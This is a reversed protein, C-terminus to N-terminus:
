KQTLKKIDVVGFPTAGSSKIEKEFINLMKNISEKVNPNDIKSKIVPGDIVDDIKLHYKNKEAKNIIGSFGIFIGLRNDGIIAESFCIYVIKKNIVYDGDIITFDINVSNVNATILRHMDVISDQYTLLQNINVTLTRSDVRLKRSIDIAYECLDYVDSFNKYGETAIIKSEFPLLGDPEIRVIIGSKNKQILFMVNLFDRLSSLSKKEKTVLSFSFNSNEESLGIVMEFYDSTVRFKKLKEPLMTSLQSFYFKGSFVIEPSFDYEKFIIKADTPKSTFSLLGDGLDLFPKQSKINFRKHYCTFKNVKINKKIGLSLDVMDKLGNKGIITTTMEGYGTEYGLTRAITRKESIYSDIGEPIHAIISDKLSNGNTNKLKDKQSYHITIKNKHLRNAKGKEDLQRIRKLTKGIINKDIHVLYIAQPENLKDFEMICIFAPLPSLSLRKLNKVTVQWKGEKKDSAKVQVRCEIPTPEMDQPLNLSEDWPFEVNFDWGTKDVDSSNAILGVSDCLFKFKSEGMGGLDRM